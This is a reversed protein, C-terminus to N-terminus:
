AVRMKRTGFGKRVKADIRVPMKDARRETWRRVQRSPPNAALEDFDFFSVMTRKDRRNM